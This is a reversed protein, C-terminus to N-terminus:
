LPERRARLPRAIHTTEPMIQMLGMPGKSSRARVDGVSEVHMVARIWPIPVDLRRSAEAILADFRNTAHATTPKALRSTNEAHALSDPLLMSSVLITTLCVIRGLSRLGTTARPRAEFASAVCLSRTREAGVSAATAIPFSSRNTERAFSPFGRQINRTALIRSRDTTLAFLRWM